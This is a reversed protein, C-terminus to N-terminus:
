RWICRLAIWCADCRLSLSHAPFPRMPRGLATGAKIKLSKFGAFVKCAHSIKSLVLSFAFWSLILFVDFSKQSSPHKGNRERNWGLIMDGKQFSIEDSDNAQAFGGLGHAEHIWWVMFVYWYLMDDFVTLVSLSHELVILIVHIYLIYISM